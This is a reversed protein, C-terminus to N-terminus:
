SQAQQHSDLAPSVLSSLSSSLQQLTPDSLHNNPWDPVRPSTDLQLEDLITTNMGM